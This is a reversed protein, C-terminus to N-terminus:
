GMLDGGSGGGTYANQYKRAFADLSLSGEQKAQELIRAAEQPSNTNSARRYADIGVSSIGQRYKSTAESASM